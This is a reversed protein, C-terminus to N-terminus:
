SDKIVDFTKRLNHINTASYGYEPQYDPPTQSWAIYVTEHGYKDKTKNYVCGFYERGDSKQVILDGVIPYRDQKM